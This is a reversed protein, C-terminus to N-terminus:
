GHKFGLVAMAAFAARGPINYSCVDIFRKWYTKLDSKTIKGDGDTDIAKTVDNGIKAWNIGDIYGFYRLVQLGVFVVGVTVIAAKGVKKVAYGSCYGTAAGFSIHGGM